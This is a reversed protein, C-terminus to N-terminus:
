ESAYVKAVNSSGQAAVSLTVTAGATLTLAPIALVLVLILFLGKRRKYLALGAKM